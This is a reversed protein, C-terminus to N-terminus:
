RLCERPRSFTLASHSGHTQILLAMRRRARLYRTKVSNVSPTLKRGTDAPSVGQFAQLGIVIQYKRLLVMRNIVSRLIGVHPQILTAFEDKRGSCIESILSAEQTKCLPYRADLLNEQHAHRADRKPM